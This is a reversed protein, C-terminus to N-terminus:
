ILRIRTWREARRKKEPRATTSSKHKPAGTPCLTRVLSDVQMNAEAKERGVGGTVYAVDMHTCIAEKAINTRASAPAPLHPQQGKRVWRRSSVGVDCLM